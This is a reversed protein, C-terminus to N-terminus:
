INIGGLLERCLQQYSGRDGSIRRVQLRSADVGECVEVEMAVNSNTLQFCNESCKYAIQQGSQELIKRIESLIDEVSRKSSVNLLSGVTKLECEDSVSVTPPTATREGSQSSNKYMGMLGESSIEWSGTSPLGSHANFNSVTDFNSSNRIGKLKQRHHPSNYWNMNSTKCGDHWHGSVEHPINALNTHVNTGFPVSYSYSLPASCPSSAPSNPSVTASDSHEGKDSESDGDSTVATVHGHTDTISIQPKCAFARQKVTLTRNNVFHSQSIVDESDQVIMEEESDSQSSRDLDLSDEKIMQLNQFNPPPSNRQHGQTFNQLLNPFSHPPSESSGMQGLNPPSSRRFTPSGAGRIQQTLHLRQLHQYLQSSSSDPSSPSRHQFVPSGPAGPAVPPSPIRSASMSVPRNQSFRHLSHHDSGGGSVQKQLYVSLSIFKFSNVFMLSRGASHIM